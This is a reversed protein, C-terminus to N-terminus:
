DIEKKQPCPLNEETRGAENKLLWLCFPRTGFSFRSKCFNGVVLCEYLKESIKKFRAHSTPPCIGKDNELPSGSPSADQNNVESTNDSDDNIM